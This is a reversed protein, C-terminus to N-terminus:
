RAKRTDPAFLAEVDDVAAFWPALMGADPGKMGEARLALYREREGLRRALEAALYLFVARSQEKGPASSAALAAETHTLSRRQYRRELEISGTLKAAYASDPPEGLAVLLAPLRDLLVQNEGRLRLIGIARLAAARCEAATGGSARDLLWAAVRLDTLMPNESTTAAPPSDKLMRECTSGIGDGYSDPLFGAHLRVAWAASQYAHGVDEPPDGSLERCQAVLDWRTSPPLYGQRSEGEPLRLSEAGLIATKVAPGVARAFARGAGSYLCTTCTVPALDVPSHGRSHILMDTDRGNFSNYSALLHVETTAGCVPCAVRVVDYTTAGAPAASALASLLLAVLLRITSHTM